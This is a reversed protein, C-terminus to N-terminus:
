NIGVVTVRSCLRHCHSSGHFIHPAILRAALSLLFFYRAQLQKIQKIIAKEENISMSEHQQQFELGKIKEDIEEDNSVGLHGYQSSFENRIKQKANLEARFSDDRAKKDAARQEERRDICLM